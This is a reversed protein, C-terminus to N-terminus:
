AVGGKMVYKGPTLQTLVETRLGAQMDYAPSFGMEVWALISHRTKEHTFAISIKFSQYYLTNPIHRIWEISRNPFCTCRSDQTPVGRKTHSIENRVVIKNRGHGCRQGCDVIILIVSIIIDDGLKRKM